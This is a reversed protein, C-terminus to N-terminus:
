RETLEKIFEDDNRGNAGYLDARQDKNKARDM